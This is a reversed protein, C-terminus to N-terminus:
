LKIRWGAPRRRALIRRHLKQSQLQNWPARTLVLSFTRAGNQLSSHERWLQGQGFRNGAAVDHYWSGPSAIVDIEWVAAGARACAAGFAFARLAASSRARVKMVM